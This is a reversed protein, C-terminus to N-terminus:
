HSYLTRYYGGHFSCDGSIGGSKSYQGDQCENVYGRGNPFNTICVFYVCFNAPPSYILNGPNFDYGWPNGNVGSKAPTPTPKPPPQTPTLTPVIRVPVPTATPTPLPTPTPKPTPLPTPHATPTATPLITTPQAQTVGTTPTPLITAIAGNAQPTPVVKNSVPTAVSTSKQDQLQPSAGVAYVILVIYGLTVLWKAPKSLTGWKWMLYLGFPFFLILMVVIERTTVSPKQLLRPPPNNQWNNYMRVPLYRSHEVTKLTFPLFDARVLPISGEDGPGVAGWRMYQIQTNYIVIKAIHTFGL